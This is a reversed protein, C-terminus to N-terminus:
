EEEKRGRGRWVPAGRVATLGAAFLEECVQAVSQRRAAMVERIVAWEEADVWFQVTAGGETPPTPRNQRVGRRDAAPLSTFTSDFMTSQM